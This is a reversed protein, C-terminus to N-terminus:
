IKISDGISLTEYKNIKEIEVAIEKKLTELFEKMFDRSKNILVGNPEVEEDHAGQLDEFYNLNKKGMKSILLDYERNKCLNKIGKSTLFLMFLFNKPLDTPDVVLCDESMMEQSISSVDNNDCLILNKEVETEMEKYDLKYVGSEITSFILKIDKGQYSCSPGLGIIADYNDLIMREHDQLPDSWNAKELILITKIEPFKGSQKLMAIGWADELNGKFVVTNIGSDFIFSALDLPFSPKSPGTSLIFASSDSDEFISSYDERLIQLERTEYLGCFSEELCLEKGINLNEKSYEGLFVIKDKM